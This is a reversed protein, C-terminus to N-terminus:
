RDEPESDQCSTDPMTTAETLSAEVIALVHDQALAAAQERARKLAEHKVLAAASPRYLTGDPWWAREIFGPLVDGREMACDAHSCHTCHDSM